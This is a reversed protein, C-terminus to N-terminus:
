FGMGQGGVDRGADSDVARRERGEVEQRLQQLQRRSREQEKEPRGRRQKLRRRAVEESLQEESEDQNLAFPHRRPIFRVTMPDIGEPVPDGEVLVVQPKKWGHEKQRQQRHFEMKEATLPPLPEMEVLMSNGIRYNLVSTPDDYQSIVNLPVSRDESVFGRRALSDVSRERGGRLRQASAAAAAALLLLLSAGGAALAWPPISSLLGARHSAVPPAAAQGATLRQGRTGTRAQQGESTIGASAAEGSVGKRTESLRVADHKTSSQGRVVVDVFVGERTGREQQQQQQTSRVPETRRSAWRSRARATVPPLSAHRPLAHHEVSSYASSLVHNPFPVSSSLPLFPPSIFSPSSRSGLVTSRQIHTMSSSRATPTSPSVAWSTSTSNMISDVVSNRTDTSRTFVAFHPSNSCVATSRITTATVMDLMRQQLPASAPFFAM